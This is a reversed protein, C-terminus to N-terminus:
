YIITTVEFCDNQGFCAECYYDGRNILPDLCNELTCDSDEM